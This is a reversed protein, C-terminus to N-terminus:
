KIRLIDQYLLIHKEDIKRDDHYHGFYWHGFDLKEEIKMLFDTLQNNERTEDIQQQVNSSASHTIVYDVKWNHQELNDVAEEYEEKSPLERAWWSVNEKRYEKDGSAAGGMTFFKLGDIQYVQGRMLHFISDTVKHIKGGNWVEVPMADLMNHNEHNGDVFLTTFNKKNFWKQWWRDKQGQEYWVLGCDGCIIVYDNKTMMRDDFHKKNLKHVDISGHTDGTIYIM